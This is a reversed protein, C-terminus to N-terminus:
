PTQGNSGADVALQTKICICAQFFRRPKGYGSALDIGQLSSEPLKELLPAGREHKLSKRAGSWRRWCGVGCGFRAAIPCGTWHHSLEDLPGKSRCTRCGGGRRSSAIELRRKALPADPWCRHACVLVIAYNRRSFGGSVTGGSCQVLHITRQHAVRASHRAFHAPRPCNHRCRQVTRTGRDAGHGLSVVVSSRM